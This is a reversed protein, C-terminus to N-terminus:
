GPALWAVLLALLPLSLVTSLLIARSTEAPEHGYLQALMFPGTGIPTANLLIAIGAWMPPMDFVWYVLLFATLPQLVLKFAVIRWPLARGPVRAQGRSLFLGITVLACPAAAAGLLGTFQFVPQPVPLGSAAVALGLLPASVLPNRLLSWSVKALTSRWQGGGQRDIEILAITGAFLVSATLITAIVAPPLGESGYLVLCLPVGMYGTNAYAGAMAKISAAGLRLGRRRDLVLSAAFVVVISLAMTAVYAPQNIERWSVQAMSQFLLAPLALWAVFKNLSDVADAGLIRRRGCVYGLLILGFLPIVANLIAQM